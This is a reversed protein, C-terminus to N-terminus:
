LFNSVYKDDYLIHVLYMVLILFISTRCVKVYFNLDTVKVKLGHIPIYITSCLIKSWYRDDYWVHGLDMIHNPFLSTRFVKVCFKLM